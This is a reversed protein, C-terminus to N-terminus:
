RLAGAPTVKGPFDEPQTGRSHQAAKRDSGICSVALEEFPYAVVVSKLHPFSGSSGQRLQRLRPWVTCVLREFFGNEAVTSPLLVPYGLGEDELWRTVSVRNSASRTLVAIPSVEMRRLDGLLTRLANGKAQGLEPDRIACIIAACAGKLAKAPTESLWMIRDTAAASHKEARELLRAQETADPPALLGTCHILLGYFRDWSRSHKMAKQNKSPHRATRWLVPSRKLHSLQQLSSNRDQFIAENRASHFVGKFFRPNQQQVEVGM